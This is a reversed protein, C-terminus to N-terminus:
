GLRLLRYIDKKEMERVEGVAMDRIELKEIKSRILRLVPFGVKACMRRVQRNKGEKLEIELWSDPISMRVRIPPDREPIVPPQPLLRVQAPQTTYEKKGVRIKVGTRLKKLDEAQPEGEVQVLYTRSHSFSPDLLFHNLRKDNTIILLGESDQDLRGVPYADKPFQFLEGLVHHSPHERTFQSLTGYPKYIIFYREM